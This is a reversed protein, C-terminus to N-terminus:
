VEKRFDEIFKRLFEDLDASVKETLIEYLAMFEYLVGEASLEPRIRTMQLSFDRFHETQKEDLNRWFSEVITRDMGESIRKAVEIQVVEPANALGIAELVMLIEKQKQEEM